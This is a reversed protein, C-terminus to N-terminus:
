YSAAHCRNMDDELLLAERSPVQILARRMHTLPTESWWQEARLSRVGESIV